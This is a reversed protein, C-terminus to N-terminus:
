AEIQPLHLMELRELERSVISRAWTINLKKWLQQLVQAKLGDLTNTQFSFRKFPPMERNNNNLMRSQAILRGRPRSFEKESPACYSVACNVIIEPNNSEDLETAITIGAGKKSNIIHYFRM